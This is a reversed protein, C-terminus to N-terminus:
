GETMTEENGARKQRATLVAQLYGWGSKPDAGSSKKRCVNVDKQKKNQEVEQHIKLFKARPSGVSM